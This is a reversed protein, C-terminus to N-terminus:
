RRAALRAYQARFRQATYDADEALARRQAERALALRLEEDGLLQAIAAAMAEADGIAVSLAADSAWEAIQGVRTGVPPVGAAAAELVAAPGAEHRSSLVMVHAAEVIPRLQQRTLFGRFRVRASLGLEAALRHIEGHLTDDGVVDMEFSVGRENLVALARLMTAQDKVRNLSGVHLLRAPGAVVRRLPAR